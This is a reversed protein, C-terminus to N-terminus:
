QRNRLRHSIKLISGDNTLRALKFQFQYARESVRQALLISLHSVREVHQIYALIAFVDM